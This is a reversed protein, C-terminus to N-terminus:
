SGMTAAWPDPGPDGGRAATELRPLYHDWGMSQQDVVGAPLNEHRFTLRTGEGEPELEFTVTSSGPAVPSDDGEWGFALVVRRNPVVERYEGVAIDQGNLDVRYVGGPLPSLEANIGMWQVMRAPEVLFAFVTEPRAAIFLSREVRREPRNQSM